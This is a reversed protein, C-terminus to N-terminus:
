SPLESILPPLACIPFLYCYLVQVLYLSRILCRSPFSSSMDIGHSFPPFRSFSNLKSRVTIQERLFELDEECNGLSRQAAQLKEVLLAEAEEIPYALMVNAGLWLYM